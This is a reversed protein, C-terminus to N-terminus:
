VTERVVFPERYNRRLMTNAWYGTDYKERSAFAEAGPALQLLPGVLTPTRALDVNNARLHDLMRAFSDKTTAHGAVADRIADNSKEEGLRHSINALHCLASSVHCEEIPANVASAKRSRMAAIFNAQHADGGPGSFQKIRAGKIDYAFGGSAGGAFYGNECQVTLGIRIGRYADMAREGAKRPLGRVEFILPAPEYNFIAIQTNPTEADDEYGFRGGISMVSPPLGPQGLVWRCMDMEHIGQNAIDGGGYNWFWHWDYHVGGRRAVKSTTNRRPPVLPAPGSWLDYDIGAPVRQPGSTKGISEREKYCLGRVWQIKGLNGARIYAFAEQLAEDSRSQTGAQVIRKYKDTAEVAKRGEWVNHSLPKEVYVDKGAQCAWIAMLSHWHNPTAIAVADISSDDLLERYDVYTAVKEGRGKFLKVQRAMVESDVDCLAAVRVGKIEGFAKIHHLGKGNFGVVAVRIDGNASGPRAVAPAGALRSQAIWASGGALISTRLFDKRTITKKPCNKM